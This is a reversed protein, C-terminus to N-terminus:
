EVSSIVLREQALLREEDEEDADVETVLTWVSATTKLYRALLDEREIRVMIRRLCTLFGNSYSDFLLTDDISDMIRFYEDEIPRYLEEWLVNIEPIYEEIEVYTWDPPYYGRAKNMEDTDFSLLIHGYFSHCNYAFSCFQEEKLTSDAILKISKKTLLYVTEEFQNKKEFASWSLTEAM